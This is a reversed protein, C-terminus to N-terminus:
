IVKAEERLLRVLEPIDNIGNDLIKGKSKSAPLFMETIEVM